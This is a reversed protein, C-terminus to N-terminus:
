RAARRGDGTPRQDAASEATAVASAASVPRESAPEASRPERHAMEDRLLDALTTQALRARRAEEAQALLSAVAPATGPVAGAEPCLRAVDALDIAAPDRALLYGTEGDVSALFGAGRLSEAIALARGGDIRLQRALTIPEVREGAAFAHAARLLMELAVATPSPSRGGSVHAGLEAVAAIEAGGLVVLWSVYIWVLMIPLQALAGYIANYRAFGIQLAVYSSQVLQWVCGALLAGVLVAGLSPRRNPMVLYLIALVGVNIAYPAIRLVRVALDGIVETNLAWRLLAQEHLSSTIGVAALLLFPTLLVVSFYDTAKRWWSRGSPVRFVHNLSNEVSGLLSIVTGLLAVAGLTGLTTVNTHEIYSLLRESSSPDLALRSLLLPELTRQAGLGSLISLILALLPVLSLLTTYTLASAHLLCSDAFFREVVAYVFGVASRLGVAISDLWRKM